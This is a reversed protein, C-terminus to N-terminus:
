LRSRTDLLVAATVRAKAAACGCLGPGIGFQNRREWGTADAFQCSRDSGQLVDAGVAV